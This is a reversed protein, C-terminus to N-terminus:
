YVNPELFVQSTEVALGREFGIMEESTLKAKGTLILEEKLTMVAVNEGRQIGEDLKSIGPVKLYAGSSISKVAQDFVYVKKLHSIAEELPMVIKKLHSSDGEKYYHFADAIDHLTYSQEESFPGAKTRRLEAMHAGTGLFQGIDHVLKRIYTGAQCKVRILVDKDERDLLELEYINRKRIRRKVASKKPPLQNLEGRFAQFVEDLEQESVSSHLHLLCVYEKECGLLSNTIRTAKEMAVPLTGTVAPDLTGSHGAKSLSLIKKLYDVAQHSTPGPPKDLVIIGKALNEDLSRESPNKGKNPDTEVEKKVLM